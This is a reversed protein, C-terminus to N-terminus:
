ICQWLYQMGLAGAHADVLSAAVAMGPNLGLQEAALTSLGGDKPDGPTLVTQGIRTYGEEVLDGLGIDQFFNDSWESVDKTAM